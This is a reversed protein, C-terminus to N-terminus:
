EYYFGEEMINEIAKKEDGNATTTLNVTLYQLFEGSTPTGTSFYPKGRVNNALGRVPYYIINVNAYETLSYSDGVAGSCQPTASMLNAANEATANAMGVAAGLSLGGSAPAAAISAITGVASTIAGMAMGASVGAGITPIQQTFNVNVGAYVAGSIGAATTDGVSRFEGVGACSGSATRTSFVCDGVGYYPIEISGCVGSTVIIKRYRPSNLFAGYTAAQPHPPVTFRFLERNLVTNYNSQPLIYVATEPTYTATGILISDVRNGSISANSDFIEASLIYDSINGLITSLTNCAWFTFSDYEAATMSYLQVGKNYSSIYVRVRLNRSFEITSNMLLKHNNEAVVTNDILFENSRTSSRSILGEYVGIDSKFSGMLDTNCSIEFRANDWSKKNIYYYRNFDPIYCYNYASWATQFAANITLTPNEISTKSKLTMELELADGGPRKTSNYKKTFNQYLYVKM